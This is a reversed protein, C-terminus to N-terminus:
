RVISDYCINLSIYMVLTSYDSVFLFVAVPFALFGGLVSNEAGM